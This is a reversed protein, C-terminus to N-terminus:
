SAAAVHGSSAVICICSTISHRSVAASRVRRADSTAGSISWRRSSSRASSTTRAVLRDAVHDLASRAARQPWQGTNRPAGTGFRFRRRRRAGRRVACLGARCGNRLQRVNGPWEYQALRSRMADSFRKRTGHRQNLEDLFYDALAAVDEGRERLPPLKIMVVALRYYIDERLHGAEVAEVPCRNTAALVRV